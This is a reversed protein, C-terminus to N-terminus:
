IEVEKKRISSQWASNASYRGQDLVMRFFRWQFCPNLVVQLLQLM